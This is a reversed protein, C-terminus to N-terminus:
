LSSLIYSMLIPIIETFRLVNFLASVHRATALTEYRSIFYIVALYPVKQNYKEVIKKLM